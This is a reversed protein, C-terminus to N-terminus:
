KPLIADINATNPLVFPLVDEERSVKVRVLCPKGKAFAKKYWMEDEEIDFADVGFGRAIAVIDPVKEFISQSYKKGFLYKQQQYVMGLTENEFVIITVQLNLEALTALEQINMLISGDGSICIVRKKPNAFSAGLAVPLGFGMTGLSGSTIFTCPKEVPYFQSAWMQHQGVDTTVIIDSKKVGGKEAFSPLESILSCPANRKKLADHKENIKALESNWESFSIKRKGSMKTALLSAVDKVVESVDRVVSIDAEFIKNIEAADLDVHIIKANPCFQEA